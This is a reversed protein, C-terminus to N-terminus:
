ARTDVQNCEVALHILHPLSVGLVRPQLSIARSRPRTQRRQAVVRAQFHLHQASKGSDARSSQARRLLLTRGLQQAAQFAHRPRPLRTKDAHHRECDGTALRPEEFAFAPALHHRFPPTLGPETVVADEKHWASAFREPLHRRLLFALVAVACRRRASQQLRARQLSQRTSDSCPCRVEPPPAARCATLRTAESN